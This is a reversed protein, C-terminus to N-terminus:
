SQLVPSYQLPSESFLPSHETQQFLIHSILEVESASFTLHSQSLWDLDCNHEADCCSQGNPSYQLLPLHETQQTVIHSISEVESSSFTLHSQELSSNSFFALSSSARLFATVGEESGEGEPWAAALLALKSM